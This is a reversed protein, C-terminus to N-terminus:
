LTSGANCTLDVVIITLYDKSGVFCNAVLIISVVYLFVISTQQRMQPVNSLVLKNLSSLHYCRDAVFLLTTM